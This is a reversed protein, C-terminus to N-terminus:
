SGTILIDGLKVHNQKEEDGVWVLDSIDQSLGPNAFINRYTAYRANGRSFDAKSKGKLGPLLVALESLTRMAVGNPCLEEILDDLRSM